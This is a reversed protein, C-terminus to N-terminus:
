TDDISDIVGKIHVKINEGDCFAIMNKTLTKIGTGLKVDRLDDCLLFLATGITTVSDPIEIDVIQSNAFAGSGISEVSNPILCKSARCDYLAKRGIHKVTDPIVITSAKVVKVKVLTDGDIVLDSM